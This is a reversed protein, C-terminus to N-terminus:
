VKKFITVSKWNNRESMIAKRGEKREKKRQKRGQTEGEGFFIEV